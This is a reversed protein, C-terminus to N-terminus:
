FPIDDEDEDEDEFRRLLDDMLEEDSEIVGFLMREAIEMFDSFEEADDEDDPQALDKYLTCTCMSAGYICNDENSDCFGIYISDNIPYEEERNWHERFLRYKMEIHLGEPFYPVYGAYWWLKEIARVVEIVMETSLQELEPFIEAPVKLWEAIPKIEAEEDRIEDIEAESKEWFELGEEEEYDEEYENDYDSFSPLNNLADALDQLLQEYYRQMSPSVEVQRNPEGIVIEDKHPMEDMMEAVERCMCFEGLGCNKPDDECFDISINGVSVWPIEEPLMGILLNYRMEIGCREPFLPEYNFTRWLKKMARVILTMEGKTWKDSPPFAHVDLGFWEHMPKIPANVFEEPGRFMEPIEPDLPPASPLNRQANNIDALLYKLYKKM